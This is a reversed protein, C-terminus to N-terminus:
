DFKENKIILLPCFADVYPAGSSNIGSCACAMSPVTKVKQM